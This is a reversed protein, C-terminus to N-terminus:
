VHGFRWREITWEYVGASGAAMVGIALVWAALRSRRM